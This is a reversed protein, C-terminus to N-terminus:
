RNIHSDIWNKLKQVKAQSLCPYSFCFDRYKTRNKDNKLAKLSKSREKRTEQKWHVMWEGFFLKLILVFVEERKQEKNTPGDSNKLGLKWGTTREDKRGERGKGGEMRRDRPTFLSSGQKSLIGVQIDYLCHSAGVHRNFGTRSTMRRCLVMVTLM